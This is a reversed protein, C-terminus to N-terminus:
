SLYRSLRFGSPLIRSCPLHTGSGLVTTPHRRTSELVLEGGCGLRQDLYIRTWGLEGTGFPVLM